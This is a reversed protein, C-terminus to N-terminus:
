RFLAKVRGLFTPAAVFVLTVGAAATTGVFAGAASVNIRKM